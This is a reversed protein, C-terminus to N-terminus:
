AVRGTAVRGRGLETVLRDRFRRPSALLGRFRTSFAPGFASGRRGFVRFPGWALECIIAALIELSILPRYVVMESAGLGRPTWRAVRLPQNPARPLALATGAEGTPRLAVGLPRQPWLPKDCLGLRSIPRM